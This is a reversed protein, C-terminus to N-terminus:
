KLLVSSGQRFFASFAVSPACARFMADNDRRLVLQSSMPSLLQEPGFTPLVLAIGFTFTRLRDSLFSDNPPRPVLEWFLV